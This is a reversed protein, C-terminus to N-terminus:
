LTIEGDTIENERFEWGKHEGCVYLLERGVKRIQRVEALQGVEIVACPDYRGKTKRVTAKITQGIYYKNQLINRKAEPTYATIIRRGCMPCIQLATTEANDGDCSRDCIACGDCTSEYDRSDDRLVLDLEGEASGRLFVTIDGSGAKLRLLDLGHQNDKACFQCPQM